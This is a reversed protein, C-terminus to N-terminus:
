WLHGIAKGEVFIKVFNGPIKTQGPLYEMKTLNSWNTGVSLKIEGDLFTKNEGAKCNPVTYNYGSSQAAAVSSYLYLATCRVHLLLPGWQKLSFM